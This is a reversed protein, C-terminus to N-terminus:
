SDVLPGKGREEPLGRPRALLKSRTATWCSTGASSRARRDRDCKQRDNGQKAGAVDDKRSYASIRAGQPAVVDSGEPPYDWRRLSPNEKIPLARYKSNGAFRGRNNIGAVVCESEVSNPSM